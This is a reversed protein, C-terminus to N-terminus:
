LKFLERLRRTQVRSVPVESQKKDDMRLQYSSKFWPVVEKIRNINVLYSRHVRWFMERNLSAQLDEITRYNSHGEFNTTVLTILGNDITAYIVDNADVILYRNNARVMLKTRTATAAPKPAAPSEPVAKDHIARRARDITEALRGRDVPKLLYDMAELRFAEVAYQDYATVFIFHPMEAEKERLRRIVGLGDLGPMNVDLFVLEPELKRILDVAELGNSGTAIVDVEPFDKLLFALEDCALKEDDVVVTTLTATAREPM